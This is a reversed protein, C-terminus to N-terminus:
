DTVLAQQIQPTHRSGMWRLVGAMSRVVVTGRRFQQLIRRLPRDAEGKTREPGNCLLWIVANGDWKPKLGLDVCPRAQGPGQSKPRKLRLTSCIARKRLMESDNNKKAEYDKHLSNQQRQDGKGLRTAKGSYIIRKNM